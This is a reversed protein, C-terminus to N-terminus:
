GHLSAGFFDDRIVDFKSVIGERIQKAEYGIVKCAYDFSGVHEKDSFLWYMELNDGNQAAKIAHLLTYRWFTMEQSEGPLRSLQEIYDEECTFM